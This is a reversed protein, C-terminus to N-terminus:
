KGSSDTKPDPKAEVKSDNTSLNSFKEKLEKERKAREERLKKKQVKRESEEKEIEKNLEDSHVSVDFCGYADKYLKIIDETSKDPPPFYFPMLKQYCVLEKELYTCFVIVDVKNRNEENELWKRVTDLAVHTAAYLPYGYIGTSIGCLAITKVEHQLVLQLVTSYCGILAKQDRGVPGVTHVVMKAPLNYGRSIKSFGTECGRLTSCEAYLMEGAAKHIAGDIGGGGLLSSNAANVIADLELTTIDGRMLAVKKNIEANGKYQALPIDAESKEKKRFDLERQYSEEKKKKRYMEEDVKTDSIDVKGSQKVEEKSEQQKQTLDKKETSDDSSQKVDENSEQKTQLDKKDTTDDSQKVEENAEQQKVEKKEEQQVEVNTEVQKVEEKSEQQKVEESAEQKVEETTKVQKTQQEKRKKRESRLIEKRNNKEDERAEEVRRPLTGKIVSDVDNDWHKIQEETIFKTGCRYRARRQKTSLKSESKWLQKVDIEKGDINGM